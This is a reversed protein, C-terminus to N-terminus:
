EYGTRRRVKEIQEDTALKLKVIKNKTACYSEFTQNPRQIIQKCGKCYYIYNSM